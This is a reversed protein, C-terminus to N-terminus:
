AEEGVLWTGTPQAWQAILRGTAESLPEAGVLGRLAAPWKTAIGPASFPRGGDRVPQWVTADSALSSECIAKLWGKKVDEGEILVRKARVCLVVYWPHVRMKRMLQRHQDRPQRWNAGHAKNPAADAMECMVLHEDSINDIVVVAPKVKAAAHLAARYALPSFPPEMAVLGFDFLPNAHDFEAPAVEGEPRAFETPRGFETDLLVIRGEPGALGRALRLASCTKGEGAEGVLGVIVNRIARKAPRVEYKEKTEAMVREEFESAWEPVGEACAELLVSNAECVGMVMLPDRAAAALDDFVGRMAQKLAMRRWQPGRSGWRWWATFREDEEFVTGVPRM